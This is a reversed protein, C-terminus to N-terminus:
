LNVTVSTPKKKKIMMDMWQDMVSKYGKLNATDKIHASSGEIPQRSKHYAMQYKLNIKRLCEMNMEIYNDDWAINIYTLKCTPDLMHSIFYISTDDTKCYWKQMNKLGAELAPHVPEYAEDQLFDEWQSQLMELLLFVKFCTPMTSSPLEGHIDRLVKLCDCALRVIEWERSSLCYNAWFKGHSLCPLGENSDALCCFHNFAKQLALATTFCNSLSGWQTHVWLMPEWKPCGLATALQAFYNCTDQGSSRLQAILALLKGVIDGPEFSANSAALIAEADDVTAEVETCTEVDFDDHEDDDKDDNDNDAALGESLEEDLAPQRQSHVKRKTRALGPVDLAGVFHSAMLHITHKIC